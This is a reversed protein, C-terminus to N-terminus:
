RGTDRHPFQFPVGGVGAAGPRRVGRPREADPDHAGAPHPRREDLREAARTVLDVSGGPAALDGGAVRDEQADGVGLDRGCGLRDRAGHREDAM